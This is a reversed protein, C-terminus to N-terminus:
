KFIQQLTATQSADTEGIRMPTVSVYGNNVAWIDTGQPAPLPM